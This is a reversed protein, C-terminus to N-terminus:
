NKESIILNKNDGNDYSHTLEAYSKGNVSIGNITGSVMCVGEWFCAGPFLEELFQQLLPYNEKLRMVQYLFVPTVTLDISKSTETIHWKSSYFRHDTTDNWSAQPTITYDKLLESSGDRNLLNLGGTYSQNIKQGTERDWADGVMIERNDNLQISFWEYTMKLGRPPPNQNVFNGWQHDIWANGLVDETFGHVTLTGTVILRTLSYYYSFDYNGFDIVGNGGVILPQKLCDMDVALKMPKSDQQSDGGVVLTYQFPRLDQGNTKTYWHDYQLLEDASKEDGGNNNVIVTTKQITDSQTASMPTNLNMPKTTTDMYKTMMTIQQNEPISNTNVIENCNLNTNENNNTIYEFSLDLHDNSATLTGIQANSYIKESAIDSISFIRVEQKEVVTSHIQYFAVFSGYEQGTTQGTLHFNAYWWEIPFQNTDHSGEDTPFIIDTGPPHYPYNKWFMDPHEHDVSIEAQISISPAIMVIIILLSLIEKIRNHATRRKNVLLNEVKM